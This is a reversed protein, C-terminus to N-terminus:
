CLCRAQIGKKAVPFFPVPIANDHPQVLFQSASLQDCLRHPGAEAHLTRGKRRGWGPANLWPGYTAKVMDLTPLFTFSLYM